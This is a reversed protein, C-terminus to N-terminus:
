ERCSSEPWTLLSTQNRGLIVCASSGRMLISYSMESNKGPMVVRETMMMQQLAKIRGVGAQHEELGDGEESVMSNNALYEALMVEKEQAKGSDRDKDREEFWDAINQTWTSRESEM